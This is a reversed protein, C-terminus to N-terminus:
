CMQILTLMTTFDVNPKPNLASLVSVWSIKLMKMKTTDGLKHIFNIVAVSDPLISSSYNLRAVRTDATFRADKCKTELLVDGVKLGINKALADIDSVADSSPDFFAYISSQGGSVVQM